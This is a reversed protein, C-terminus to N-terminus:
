RKKIVMIMKAHSRPVPTVATKVPNPTLKGDFGASTGILFIAIGAYLQFYEALCFSRSFIMM